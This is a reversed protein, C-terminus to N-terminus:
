EGKGSNAKAAAAAEQAAHACYLPTCRSCLVQESKAIASLLYRVSLLLGTALGVVAYQHRHPCPTLAHPCLALAENGRSRLGGRYLLGQFRHVPHAPHHHRQACTLLASYLGFASCM